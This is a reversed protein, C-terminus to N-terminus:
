GQWPKDVYFRWLEVPRQTEIRDPAVGDRVQAFGALVGAPDRALLTVISPDLIERRQHDPHWASALHKEMDEASNDAAFSEYFTRAGFESLAGVDAASAVQIRFVVDNM